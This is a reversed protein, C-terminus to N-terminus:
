QQAELDEKKVLVKTGNPLELIISKERVEMVIASVQGLIKSNYNVVQGQVFSM